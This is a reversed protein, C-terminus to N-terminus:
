FSPASLKEDDTLEVFQARAFWDRVPAYGAPDGGVNVSTINFHERDPKGAGFKTIPRDLPVVKERLVATGVPDVLVPAGAGEPPALVVPSVAGPPLEASWSRPDAIAQALLPWVATSGVDDRAEDGFRFHVHVSIDF